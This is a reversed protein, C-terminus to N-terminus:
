SFINKLFMLVYEERLNELSKLFEQFALVKEKDPFEAKLKKELNSIDDELGEAEKRLRKLRESKEEIGKIIDSVQNAREKFNNVTNRLNEKIQKERWLTEKLLSESVLYELFLNENLLFIKGKSGVGNTEIIELDLIKEKLSEWNVEPIGNTKLIELVGEETFRSCNNAGVRKTTVESLLNFVKTEEPTLLLIPLKKVVREPSKTNEKDEASKSEQPQTSENFILRWKGKAVNEVLGRKKFHRLMSHPYSSTKNAFLGKIENTSFIREEGLHLSIKRLFNSTKRM